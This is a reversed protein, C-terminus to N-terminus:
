RRHNGPHAPLLHLGALPALRVFPMLQAHVPPAPRTIPASRQPTTYSSSTVLRLGAWTTATVVASALLIAVIMLTMQLRETM